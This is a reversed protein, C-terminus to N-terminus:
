KKRPKEDPEGGVALAPNKELLALGLECARRAIVQRSAFPFRKVLADLRATTADDVRFTVVTKFRQERPAMDGVLTAHAAARALAKRQM